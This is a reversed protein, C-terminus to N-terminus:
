ATRADAPGQDGKGPDLRGRHQLQPLRGQHAAKPPARVRPLTIADLLLYDPRPTLAAVAQEMAIITAQLINVEDITREDAIGIGYASRRSGQDCRVAPRAGAGAGTQFRDPGPHDLGDPLIVAAAVVPGALPGRGGRGTRCDPIFGSARASREFYLPDCALENGFLDDSSGPEARGPQAPPAYPGRNLTSIRIVFGLINLCFTLCCAPEYEPEMQCETSTSSQLKSSATVTRSQLQKRADRRGDIGTGARKGQDQCGQRASRAPFLAKARRVKGQKALEIKDIMPSHLPFLREVGVGYSLKRVRIVERAGAGQRGIVVGEYVQIREKDGEVVKAHVRITDGVRFSPIGEKIQAKELSQIINM